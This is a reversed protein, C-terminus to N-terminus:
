RVESVNRCRRSCSLPAAAAGALAPAAAVSDADAHCAYACKKQKRMQNLCQNSPLSSCVSLNM